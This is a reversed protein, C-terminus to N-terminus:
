GGALMPDAAPRACAATLGRLAAAGPAASAALRAVLRLIPRGESAYKAEYNTRPGEPWPTDRREVALEPHAALLSAVEEGYDIFDTAFCLTGGPALLGLVLDVSGPSFLRRRQHRSKPWPDPFYAHVASAFARPLIADLVFLAEGHVLVVNGLGRRRLRREALRFYEGAVEIGLFRREPEAAARGLLYRGKGFGIEVEWAGDGAALRPLPLPAGLEILRREGAATAVVVPAIM